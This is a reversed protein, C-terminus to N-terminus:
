VAEKMTSPPSTALAAAPFFDINVKLAEMRLKFLTTVDEIVGDVTAATMEQLNGGDLRRQCCTLLEDLLPQVKAYDLGGLAALGKTKIYAAAQQLDAGGPVEAGTGVLLLMARIIWSELKSASMQTIVFTLPNGRDELTVTISKRAM